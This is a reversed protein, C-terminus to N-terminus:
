IRLGLHSGRFYSSDSPPLKIDCVALEITKFVYSGLDICNICIHEVSEM